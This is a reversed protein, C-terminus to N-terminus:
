CLSVVCDSGVQEIVLRQTPGLNPNQPHFHGQSENLVFKEDQPSLLLVSLCSSVEYSISYLQGIASNAGCMWTPGRHGNWAGHNQQLRPHTHAVALKQDPEKLASGLGRPDQCLAPTSPTLYFVGGWFLGRKACVLFVINVQYLSMEVGLSM